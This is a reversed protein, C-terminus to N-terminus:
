GSTKTPILLYSHKSADVLLLLRTSTFEKGDKQATCVYKGSFTASVNRILAGRQPNFTVAMGPPLGGPEQERRLALNSVSPDTVLCELLFDRGEELTPIRKPVVFVSAPKASDSLVSLCVPLCASLCASM